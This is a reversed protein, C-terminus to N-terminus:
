LSLMRKVAVRALRPVFGLGDDIAHSLAQGQRRRAAGLLEALREQDADSLTRVAEPAEAGLERSLSRTTPSM